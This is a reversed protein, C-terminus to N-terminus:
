FLIDFGDRNRYSARIVDNGCSFKKISVDDKLKDITDKIKKYIYDLIVKDDDCVGITVM